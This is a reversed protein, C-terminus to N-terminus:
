LPWCKDLADLIDVVAELDQVTDKASCVFVERVAVSAPATNKDNNVLDDEAQVALLDAAVKIRV